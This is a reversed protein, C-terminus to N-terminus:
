NHARETVRLTGAPAFYAHQGTVDTAAIEVVYTHKAAPEGPILNLKLTVTQGTPGSGVM